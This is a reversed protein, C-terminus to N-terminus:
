GADACMHDYLFDTLSIPDPDIKFHVTQKFLITIMIHRIKTLDTRVPRNGGVEPVTYMLPISMRWSMSMMRLVSPTQGCCLTKNSM